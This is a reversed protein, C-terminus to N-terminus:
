VKAEFYDLGSEEIAEIREVLGVEVLVDVVDGVDEHDDFKL